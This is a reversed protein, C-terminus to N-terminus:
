RVHVHTYMGQFSLRVNKDPVKVITPTCGDFGAEIYQCVSNSFIRPFEGGQVILTVLMNGITYFTGHKM